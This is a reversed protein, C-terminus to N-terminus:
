IKRMRYTEVSQFFEVEFLEVAISIVRSIVMKRTQTDM